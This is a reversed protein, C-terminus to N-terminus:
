NLSAVLGRSPRFVVKFYAPSACEVGTKPNRRRRAKCLRVDWRGVHKIYTPLSMQARTQVLEFVATLGAEVRSRKMDGGFAWCLQDVLMAKDM